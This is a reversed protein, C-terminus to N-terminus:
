ASCRHAQFARYDGEFACSTCAYSLPRGTQAQLWSHAQRLVPSWPTALDEGYLEARIALVVVVFAAAALDLLVRQNM